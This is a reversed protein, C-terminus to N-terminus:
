PRMTIKSTLNKVYQQGLIVYLQFNLTLFIRFETNEVNSDLVLNIQLWAFIVLIMFKISNAGPFSFSPISIIKQM